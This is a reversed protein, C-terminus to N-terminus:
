RGPTAHTRPPDTAFLWPGAPPLHTSRLATAAHTVLDIPEMALPESGSVSNYVATLEPAPSTSAGSRGGRVAEALRRALSVAGAADTGPALVAVQFLGLRAVADCGRAQQQFIRGCSRMTAESEGPFDLRFVVCAMPDRTRRVQASLERARRSLGIRNYLGTTPDTLGEQRERVLTRRVRMLTELRLVPALTGEDDKAPLVDWAGARLFALRDSESLRVATAVVIPRDDAMTGRLTRCLMLAEADPLEADLILLDPEEEDLLELAANATAVHRVAHGRGALEMGLWNRDPSAVLVRGPPADNCPLWPELM